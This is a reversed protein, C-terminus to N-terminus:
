KGKMTIAIYTGDDVTEFNESKCFKCNGEISYYQNSPFYHEQPCAQLCGDAWKQRYHFPLLRHINDDCESCLFSGMCDLCKISAPNNCCKFCTFGDEPVTFTDIFAAFIGPRSATWNSEATEMRTSWESPQFDGDGIIEEMFNKLDHQPDEAHGTQNYDENFYKDQHHIHKSHKQSNSTSGSEKCKRKSRPKTARETNGDDDPRDRYIDMHQGPTKVSMQKLVSACLDEEVCEKKKRPARQRWQDRCSVSRMVRRPRLPVTHCVVGGVDEMQRLQTGHNSDTLLEDWDMRHYQGDMEKKAPRKKEKGASNGTPDDQIPWQIKNYPWVVKVEKEECHVAPGQLKEHTTINKSIPTNKIEGDNNKILKTKEGSIEMGYRTSTTDLRKVFDALEEENGALGDIDDAFMLNTITQGGISVTGCHDELAETM